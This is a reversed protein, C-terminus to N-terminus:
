ASLRDLVLGAARDVDGAGVTVVVDGKHAQRAAIRAADDLAPAWALPMGPRVQALADVVLKGSVGPVPAERAPYIETVCVSDAASLAGAFEVALHRTRSYLHPQFLVHVRASAHVDRLAAVTAAVEAPHHGYDDYVSVGAAEGRLELRRAAGSFAGVAALADDRQVGALELAAVAAAANRRNHDGPVALPADLPPLEDGRVVQGCGALWQEFLAEVEARSAFTAHHDLDVNTLVGIAPRLLELSRDSEDGEAVLWGSGARANAGLQPVTGGILFTPDLGLRDLSFAIM